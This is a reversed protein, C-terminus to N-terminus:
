VSVEERTTAVLVGHKVELVSVEVDVVDDGSIEFLPQQKSSPSPVFREVYRLREKGDYGGFVFLQQQATVVVAAACRPSSMTPLFAWARTNFDFVEATALASERHFGGVVYLFSGTGGCAAAARPQQMRPLLMWRTVENDFCEASGAVEDDGDGGCVCIYGQVNAAALARRGYRMPPMAEWEGWGPDFREVERLAEVGDVGGCAVLCNRRVAGGAMSRRQRMPPCAHWTGSAVDFRESSKLHQKGNHGGCIYIRGKIVGALAGERRQLMPPMVEWTASELDFREVSRLPAQDNCGGCIYIQDSAPTYAAAPSERAQQLPLVGDQTWSGDKYRVGGAGLLEVIEPPSTLQDLGTCHSGCSFQSWFKDAIQPAMGGNDCANCANPAATM